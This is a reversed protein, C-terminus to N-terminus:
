KNLLKYLLSKIEDMEGQLKKMDHKTQLADIAQFKANRYRQRESLDHSTIVGTSEDKLLHQYGDVKNKM